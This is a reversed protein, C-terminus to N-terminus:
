QKALTQFFTSRKKLSEPTYGPVPTASSIFREIIRAYQAWQNKVFAPLPLQSSPITRKVQAPKIKYFQQLNDEIAYKHDGGFAFVVTKAKIEKAKRMCRKTIMQNRTDWFGAGIDTAAAIMRNHVIRILNMAEPSHWFDFMKPGRASKLRPMFDRYANDYAKKEETTMESIAAEIDKSSPHPRWDSPWAIANVEKAAAIVAPVESPYYFAEEDKGYHEPTVEFCVIDPKYSKIHSMLDTLPYGFDKKHHFGHVTALVFVRPMESNEAKQIPTESYAITQSCNCNDRCGYQFILLSVLIFLQFKFLQMLGSLM